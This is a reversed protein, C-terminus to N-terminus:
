QASGKDALKAREENLRKVADIQPVDNWLEELQYKERAETTLIHIIVYGFDVIVWQSQASGDVVLPRLAYERRMERSLREALADLHPASIGTCVLYHDAQAWNIGTMDFRIINEAKRDYLTAECFEALELSTPKKQETMITKEMYLNHEKIYAFVAPHLLSRVADPGETRLRHRIETSSDAQLPMIDLVSKLLKETLEPSWHQALEAADPMTEEGRPIILFSYNEALEEARYWTHLQRLSDAGIVWAFSDQPYRASLAQMTDFTYSKGQREQEIENIEMGEELVLSLMNKRHGYDSIQRVGAKHPPQPAPLFFVKEAKGSKLLSRAINLHAPHVPDFTGGLLAIKM